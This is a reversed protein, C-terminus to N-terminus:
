ENGEGKATQVEEGEPTVVGPKVVEMIYTGSGDGTPTLRIQEREKLEEMLTHNRAERIGEVKGAYEVLAQMIVSSRNMNFDKAHGDIWSLLGHGIRIQVARERKESLFAFPNVPDPDRKKKGRGPKSGM